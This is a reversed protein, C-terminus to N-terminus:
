YKVRVLTLGCAPVTPGALFRRQSKLIKSFEKPSIKGRGVELLTGAINRVMHYLFGDAEILFKIEKGKQKVLIQKIRRISSKTPSGAAQFASFNKRGLLLRAAKKMLSLNLPYVYQYVRGNLLPSRIYSNLIRYEYTKTKASCRAHFDAPVEEIKKVAVQKPLIGNLGKQIKGLVLESDTKFNVVQAEAHVGSDTRGAAAAIKMRRNFLRSLAKELESQVTPRDTQRQFGFFSSGDYELTLKLNRM